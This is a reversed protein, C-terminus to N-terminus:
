AQFTQNQRSKRFWVILLVIGTVILGTSLGVWIGRVEMQMEFALYVGVPM